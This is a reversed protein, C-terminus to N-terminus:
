KQYKIERDAGAGGRKKAKFGQVVIWLAIESQGGFRLAAGSGTSPWLGWKLGLNKWDKWSQACKKLRQASNKTLKVEIKTFKVVELCKEVVRVQTKLGIDLTVERLGLEFLGNKGWLWPDGWV